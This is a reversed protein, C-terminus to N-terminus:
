SAPRQCDSVGAAARRSFTGAILIKSLVMLLETPLARVRQQFDTRSIMGSDFEAVLDILDSYHVCNRQEAQKM